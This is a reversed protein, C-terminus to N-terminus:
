LSSFRLRLASIRNRFAISEAKKGNVYIIQRTNRRKRSFFSQNVTDTRCLRKPLSSKSFFKGYSFALRRHVKTIFHPYSPFRPYQNALSFLRCFYLATFLKGSFSLTAFLVFRRLVSIKQLNNLTCYTVKQYKM